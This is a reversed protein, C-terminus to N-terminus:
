SLVLNSIYFVIFGILYGLYVEKPKNRNLYLRITGILGTFFIVLIGINLVTLAKIGALFVIYGLMAGWGLTYLSFSKFFYILLSIVNLIVASLIVNILIPPMSIRTMFYYSLSYIILTTFLIIIKDSKIPNLFSSIIGFYYLIPIFLLPIVCTSIFFISYIVKQIDPNLHSLYYGSNFLIFVAFSTMLLPHFCYNVYHLITKLNFDKM